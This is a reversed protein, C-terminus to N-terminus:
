NRPQGFLHQYAQYGGYGVGGAAGGALGGVALYPRPDYKFDTWVGIKSKPEHFSGTPMNAVADRQGLHLGRIADKSQLDHRRQLEALLSGRQEQPTNWYKRINNNSQEVMPRLRQQVEPAHAHINGLIDRGDWLPAADIRPRTFANEITTPSGVQTMSPTGREVSFDLIQGQPGKNASHLDGLRQKIGRPQWPVYGDALQQFGGRDNVAVYPALPPAATKGQVRAYARQMFSPAFRQNLHDTLKATAGYEALPSVATTPM